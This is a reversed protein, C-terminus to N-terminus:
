AIDSMSDMTISERASKISRMSKRWWWWWLLVTMGSVSVALIFYVWVNSAMTLESGSSTTEYGFFNSGFLTQLQIKLTVGKALWPLDSCVALFTAPLFIASVLAIIKMSKTDETTQFTLQKVLKNEHSGQEVIDHTMSSISRNSESARIHLISQV